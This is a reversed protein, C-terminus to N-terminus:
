SATYLSHLIVPSNDVPGEVPAHTLKNCTPSIADDDDYGDLWLMLAMPGVGWLLPLFLTINCYTKNYHFGVHVEVDEAMNCFGGSFRKVPM